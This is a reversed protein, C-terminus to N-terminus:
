IIVHFDLQCDPYFACSEYELQKLNRQYYITEKLIKM